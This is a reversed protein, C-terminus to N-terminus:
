NLWVSLWKSKWVSTYINCQVDEFITSVCGGYSSLFRGCYNSGQLAVQNLGQPCQSGSQTMDVYAVRMWGGEGGCNEGEMDCYVQVKSGNSTTISYYGSPSNPNISTCPNIPKVQISINQLGEMLAESVPPAQLQQCEDTTQQEFTQVILTSNEYFAKLQPNVTFLTDICDCDNEIAPPAIDSSVQELIETLQQTSSDHVEGCQPHHVNYIMPLTSLVKPVCCGALVCIWFFVCKLMRFNCVTKQKLKRRALKNNLASLVKVSSLTKEVLLYSIGLTFFTM